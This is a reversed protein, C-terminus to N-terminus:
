TIINILLLALVFFVAADNSLELEIEMDMLKWLSM